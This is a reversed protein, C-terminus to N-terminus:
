GQVRFGFNETGIGKVRFELPHPNPNQTKNNRDRKRQQRIRRFAGCVGRGEGHAPPVFVRGIRTWLGHVAGKHPARAGLLCWAVRERERSGGSGERQGRKREKCGERGGERM